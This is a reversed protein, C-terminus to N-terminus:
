SRVATKTTQARWGGSLWRASTQYFRTATRGSVRINSIVVTATLGNRTLSLVDFPDVLLSHIRLRNGRLEFEVHGLDIASVAASM